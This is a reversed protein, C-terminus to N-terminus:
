SFTQIFKFQVEFQHKTLKPQLLDPFLFPHAYHFLEEAIWIEAFWSNQKKKQLTVELITVLSRYKKDTFYKILSNAQLEDFFQLAKKLQYYNNSENKYNLFHKIQFTVKRYRTSGLSDIEYDM